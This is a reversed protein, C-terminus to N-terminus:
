ALCEGDKIAALPGAGLGDLIALARVRHACCVGRGSHLWARLGKRDSRLPAALAAAARALSYWRAARADGADNASSRPDDRKSAEPSARRASVRLLPRLRM